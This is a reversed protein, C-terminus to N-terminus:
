KTIRYHQDDLAGGLSVVSFGDAAVMLRPDNALPIADANAIISNMADQLAACRSAEDPAARFEALAGAAETNGIAGINGGGEEIAPGVMSNLPNSMTGMFNLDAYVTLDWGSPEGFVTGIWGGVDLNELTVEAGAARLQEQVYVNGSGQPGLIQAGVMRIKVGDLASKAAAADVNIVPSQEPSSCKTGNAVLQTTVQGHGNSTINEFAARDLVQAVAKRKAPDTFPSGKRQNFLVYFDSFAENTVTYKDNGEFRPLSNANVFGTDLQGALLQNATANKDAIVNYVITAPVQGPLEDAYQPWADYDDRLSYTYRVGHEKGSLLYPGSEAGKATGAALAEPDELGAPCIIGTAAMSLGTLMDPWPEALNIAVTGAADDATIDPTGAVGFVQPAAASGTEPSALYDLSDKVVSATIATGDSCTAGQRLTLVAGDATAEWSEALGGVLSNGEDKRLLTDFSMRATLFDPLSLGKAPDLTAPLDITARVTDTSVAGAEAAASGGASPSSTTCATLLLGAVSLAGLTPLFSRNM